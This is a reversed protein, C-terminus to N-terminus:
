QKLPNPIEKGIGWNGVQGEIEIPCRFTVNFEGLLSPNIMIRYIEPLHNDIVKKPAYFLLADHVTGIIILNPFKEHIEVAAALTLEAAGGQIPSNIAQRLAEGKEYDYEDNMASPLHRRRGTWTEVYGYTQAFKRKKRHWKTLVYYKTFFGSRIEVCEEYEFNVGFKEKAYQQFKDEKMGYIFGFNIAKGKKREAKDPTEIDFIDRVTGSHIDEGTRFYELMTPENADDATLRLEIQSYDIEVLVFGPPAGICSRITVERPTQQLNPDECSPRGTVTGHIKFSPYMFGTRMSKQKWSTLFQMNKIAGRYELILTPLEYGDDALSILVSESTSRKGGPTYSVSPIGLDDFMLKALQDPSNWNINGYDNLLELKNNVIKEWHRYAENWKEPDIYVGNIETNIYMRVVRMVLRTLLRKHTDSLEYQDTYEKLHYTYYCDKALYQCHTHLDGDMGKQHLPVDYDVFNEFVRSLLNKLELSSNEDILHWALMTDFKPYFTIGLKRNTFLADFKGNHTIISKKTMAKIIRRALIKQVLKNKHYQNHNLITIYQKKGNSLGFSVIKSNPDNPNLGTTETDYAIWENNNVWRIVENINTEDVLTYDIKEEEEGYVLKFFQNIDEKFVSYSKTTKIARAPHYTIRYTIGDKKITAGQYNKLKTYGLTSRLAIGGMILIFKPKVTQIELDLWRKCAKAQKATANKRYPTKCHVANTLYVDGRSIGNENLCEEIIKGYNGTFPHGYSDDTRGPSEGIIMVDCPIPGIGLMCVHSAEECLNCDRCNPDREM